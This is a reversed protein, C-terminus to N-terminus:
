FSVASRMELQNGAYEYHYYRSFLSARVAKELLIYVSRGESENRKKISRPPSTYKMLEAFSLMMVM